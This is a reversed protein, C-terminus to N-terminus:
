LLFLLNQNYTMLSLSVSVHKHVRRNLVSGSVVSSRVGSTTEVYFTPWMVLKNFEETTRGITRFCARGHECLQVPMRLFVMCVFDMYFIRVLKAPGVCVPPGFICVSSVNIEFLYM